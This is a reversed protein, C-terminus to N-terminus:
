EDALAELAAEYRETMRREDYRDEVHARAREGHETALEGALRDIADALARPDRPPVIRGGAVARAADGVDTSVVPTGCAQSELVVNPLGESISPLVTVDAGYYYERVDDVWGVFEVADAVGQREAEALYGEYNTGDGVVTLEYDRAADSLLRMAELLYELGKVPDLRGVYVLEVPDDVPEPPRYAFRSTDIGNPVIALRGRPVLAAMDERLFEGIGISRDALRFAARGITHTYVTAAADVVADGYEWNIGPLADTTLLCATDTAAAVAVCLATPLYDYEVAVVVDARDVETRLARVLSVSVLPYRIGPLKRVAFAVSEVGPGFEHRTGVPHVVTVEHGRESLNAALREVTKRIVETPNFLLVRM